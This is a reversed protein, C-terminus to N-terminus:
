LEEIWGWVRAGLHTSRVSNRLLWGALSCTVVDLVARVPGIKPPMWRIGATVQPVGEMGWSTGIAFWPVWENSGRLLLGIGGRVRRGAWPAGIGHAYEASVRLPMGIGLAPLEVAGGLRLVSPVGETRSHNERLPTYRADLEDWATGLVGSVTDERVVLRSEMLGWRLFGLQELSFGILASPEVTDANKWEWRAGLSIGIGWGISPAVGASTALWSADANGLHWNQRASVLWSVTSDWLWSAIPFVRLWGGPLLEAYAHGRYVHLAFGGHLAGLRWPSPVDELMVLQWLTRAYALTAVSYVRVSATGGQLELTDAGLVPQRAADAAGHPLQSRLWGHTALGIGLAHERHPRWLLAVPEVRFQVSLPKRVLLSALAERDVQTLRRRQRGSPTQIGGFYFAYERLTLGQMGGSLAPLSVELLGPRGVMGAPNASLAEVGWASVGVTAGQAEGFHQADAVASLALFVWGAWWQEKM